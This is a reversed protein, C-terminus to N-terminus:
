RRKSNLKALLRLIEVYIWLVTALLSMACYWEIAKAYRNKAGQKISDMDALLCFSALVIVFLSFLIGIFSNGNIINVPSYVGIIWLFFNISQLVVLAILAIGLRKRMHDDVKIAENASIFAVTIFVICTGLFAQFALGPLVSDVLKSLLSLLVGKLIAYPFILYKAWLPKVSVAFFLGLISIFCLSSIRNLAELSEKMDYNFWIYTASLLTVLLACLSKKLTSNVTMVEKHALASDYVQLREQKLLPNTNVLKRKKKM